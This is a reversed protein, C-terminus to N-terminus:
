FLYTSWCPEAQVCPFGSYFVEVPPVGHTFNPAAHPIAGHQLAGPSRASHRKLRPASIPILLNGLSLTIKKEEETLGRAQPVRRRGWQSKLGDLRCGVNRRLRRLGKSVCNKVAKHVNVLATRLSCQRLLLGTRIFLWRKYEASVLRIKYM